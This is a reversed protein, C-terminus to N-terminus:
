CQEDKDLSLKVNSFLCFDTFNVYDNVKSRLGEFKEVSMVRTDVSLSIRSRM